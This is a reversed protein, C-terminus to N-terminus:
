AAKRKQWRRAEGEGTGVIEVGDLSPLDHITV